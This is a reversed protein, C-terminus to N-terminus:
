MPSLQLSFVKKSVDRWYVRIKYSGSQGGGALTMKCNREIRTASLESFDKTEVGTSPINLSQLQKVVMDQVMTKIRKSTCAPLRARSLQPAQPGGKFAGKLAEIRLGKKLSDIHDWTPGFSIGGALSAMVLVGALAGRMSGGGRIQILHDREVSSLGTKEIEYIKREARYLYYQNAFLYFVPFVLLSAIGLYPHIFFLLAPILILLAGELDLKRYFLWIPGFLFAAWNWGIVHGKEEYKRYLRDYKQAKKEGVFLWM